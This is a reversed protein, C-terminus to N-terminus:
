QRRLAVLGPPPLVNCNPSFGSFLNNNLRKQRERLARVESKIHLSVRQNFNPM